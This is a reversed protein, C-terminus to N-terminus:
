QNRFLIAILSYLLLAVGVVASYQKALFFFSRLCHSCTLPYEYGGTENKLAQQVNKYAFVFQLYDFSVTILGLIGAGFLPLLELAILNQAYASDSMLLGFVVACLGFGIYRALDSIKQTVHRKEELVKDLRASTKESSSKEVM